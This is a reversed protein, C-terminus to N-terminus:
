SEGGDDDDDDPSPDDEATLTRFVQELSARERHLEWLTWDSSKAVEDILDLGSRGPMMLDLVVADFHRTFLLEHGADGDEAITVDFGEGEFSDRLGTRLALDDEVILLRKGSLATLEDALGAVIYDLDAAIVDQATKM